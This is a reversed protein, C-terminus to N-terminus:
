GLDALMADLDDTSMEDEVAVAAVTTDEEAEPEADAEEFEPVEAPAATKAEPEFASDDHELAATPADHSIGAPMIGTVTSIAALAKNRGEDYEQMVYADLDNLNAMVAKDVPKSKAATLVSYETNLGKGTRNIIIDVGDTLSLFDDGHEDMIDFVKEGTTPTLDLIIPASPDDGDLHLANFLIRSKSKGEKLAEIVDDDGATRMGHDIADCIPCVKGFTKDACIYVAKLNEDLDKIFHQGFDAFFMPDEKDARWGPLIRFRNKGPQPKLTKERRGSSAQLAQKKSKVLDMIKSM